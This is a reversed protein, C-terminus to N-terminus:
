VYADKTGSVLPWIRQYAQRLTKAMESWGVSVRFDDHHWSQHWEPQWHRCDHRSEPKLPVLCCEYRPIWRNELAFVCVLKQCLQCLECIKSQAREMDWLLVIRWEFCFSCMETKFPANHSISCTCQRIQSNHWNASITTSNKAPSLECAINTKIM